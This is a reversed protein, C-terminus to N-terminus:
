RTSKVTDIKARANKGTGVHAQAGNWYGYTGPCGEPASTHGPVMGTSMHARAGKLHGYTDQCEKPSCTGRCGEQTWIHGLVRGTGM